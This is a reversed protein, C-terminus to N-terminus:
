KFEVTDISAPDEFRIGHMGAESLARALARSMFIDPRHFADRFIHFSPDIEPKLARPHGLGAVFKRGEQIEVWVESRAYDYAYLRRKVDLFVYGDLKTGDSFEWDIPLTEIVGADFSRMIEAFAPSVILWSSYVWADVRRAPKKKRERFKPQETILPFGQGKGTSMVFNMGPPKNLWDVKGFSETNYQRFLLYASEGARPPNAPQLIRRARPLHPPADVMGELRADQLIASFEPPPQPLDLTETMPTTTEQSQMLAASMM